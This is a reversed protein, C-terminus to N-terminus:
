KEAGLIQVASDVAASFGRALGTIFAIKVTESIRKGDMEKKFCEWEKEIDVKM